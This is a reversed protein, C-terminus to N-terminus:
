RRRPVTKSRRNQPPSQNAPSPPEPVAEAWGEGILMSAASDPLLLVDGINVRSLDLGNLALALKRTLRVRRVLRDDQAVCANAKHRPIPKLIM